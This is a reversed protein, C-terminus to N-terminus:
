GSSRHAKLYVKAELFLRFLEGDLQGQRVESKMIDLAKEPPVAPKYPRDQAALADYIDSLTMMRTQPPIDPAAFGYPYGSGDLKEHHSRAIVPIRELDRTWPIKSLFEYTHVVHDQIKLRQEHTLTGKSICLAEVEDPELFRRPTGDFDSFVREGVQRVRDFDSHHTVTPENATEAVTLALDIQAFDRRLREEFDALEEPSIEERKKLLRDLLARLSQVEVTRKITRFRERVRELREDYLKRRKQLINERVGVKGFDHLLAAYRLEQLQDDGLILKGYPGSETLNTVRALEVTMDAVRRSHGETVPDRSEIAVVAADVFDGFMKEIRQYLQNNEVSIAAQSALSSVLAEDHATFPIVEREFTEPTTLRVGSERKKNILQLVGIAEGEHNQMPVVLMSRGRYGTSEDFSRNITFPKGPPLQYADELNLTEKTGAVYGAISAPTIELLRDDQFSFDRSDNQALQFRLRSGEETEVVLYLSGADAHTIERSKSLILNLLRNHDREASLAIGIANLEALERAKQEAAAQSEALRRRSELLYAANRLTRLLDRESPAAPLVDFILDDFGSALSTEGSVAVVPLALPESARALRRVRGPHARILEGDVLLLSGEPAASDPAVEAVSFQAHVAPYSQRSLWGRKETWV